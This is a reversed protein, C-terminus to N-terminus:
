DVGAIAIVAPQLEALGGPEAVAAGGVRLVGVLGGLSLLNGDRM